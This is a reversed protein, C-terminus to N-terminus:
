STWPTDRSYKYTVDFLLETEVWPDAQQRTSIQPVRTDAHESLVALGALHINQDLALMLDSEMRSRVRLRPLFTSAQEVFPNTDDFTYREAATVVLTLVGQSRRTDRIERPDADHWVFAVRSHEAPVDVTRDLFGEPPPDVIGVFDFKAWHLSNADPDIAAVLTKAQEVIQWKVLDNPPAM